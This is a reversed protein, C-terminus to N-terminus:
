SMLQDLVDIAEELSSLRLDFSDVSEIWQVLGAVEAANLDDGLRVFGPLLRRLAAAKTLPTLESQVNAEFQPFVIWGVSASMTVAATKYAPPLLYRVRKGDPRVHIPARALDPFYSRALVPWSGPKIGIGCPVPRALFTEAALVATDDGWIEFGAAALGAVLTSKGAGSLGPLLLCKGGRSVLGAHLACFDRSLELARRISCIKAMVAVGQYSGCWELVRGNERIAFGGDHVILDFVTGGAPRSAASLHAFLEDVIRLLSMTEFRITFISDLLRYHRAHFTSTLQAASDPDATVANWRSLGLKEAHPTVQPVAFGRDENSNSNSQWQGIVDAISQRAFSPDLGHEDALIAIIQDTSMGDEFCSWIFAASANAGYFRQRRRDFLIAEDGLFHLSVDNLPLADQSV